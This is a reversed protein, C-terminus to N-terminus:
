SFKPEEATEDFLVVWGSRLVSAPSEPDLEWSQDFIVNGTEGLGFHLVLEGGACDFVKSNSFYELIDRGRGNFLDVTGLNKRDKIFDKVNAYSAPAGGLAEDFSKSGMDLKTIDVAGSTHVGFYVGTEPRYVAIRCKKVHDPIGRFVGIAEQNLQLENDKKVSFIRKAQSTNQAYYEHNTEFNYYTANWNCNSNDEKCVEAWRM